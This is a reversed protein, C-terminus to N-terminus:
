ATEELRVHPATRAIILVHQGVIVKNSAGLHGSLVANDGFFNGKDDDPSPVCAKTKHGRRSRLARLGGGGAAGQRNLTTVACRGSASVVRFWQGGIEYILATDEDFPVGREGTIPNDTTVVINPRYQFMAADTGERRNLEDLSPQHTILYPHGDAARAETPSGSRLTRVISGAARMLKAPRGIQDSVFDAAEAGLDIGWMVGGHIRVPLAQAEEEKPSLKDHRLRFKAGDTRTLDLATGGDAVDTAMAILLRDKPHAVRPGNDDDWGRPTVVTLPGDHEGAAVFWERDGFDGVRFGAKTAELEQPPVGEVTTQGAGKLVYWGVDLVEGM